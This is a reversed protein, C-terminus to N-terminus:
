STLQNLPTLRKLSDPSAPLQLPQTGVPKNEVWASIAEGLDGWRPLNRGDIEATKRSAVEDNLMATVADHIAVSTPNPLRIQGAADIMELSPVDASVIVPVGLALSELPPLGYGEALSPFLTARSSRILCRLEVDDPQERWVLRGTARLREFLEWTPKELREVRGVMVLEVDMERKWLYDFAELIAHINKRPELTGVVTFRRSEAQFEGQATGLGDCGLTLAPWEPRDAIRLFRALFDRRTQQSIFALNKMRRLLRLYEITARSAGVSFWQPQLWPLLDYVLFYLHDGWGRELWHQYFGIRQPCFFLELNLMARYRTPLVEDRAIPVSEGINRLETLARRATEPCDGFFQQMLRFTNGPLRYVKGEGGVRVPFLASDGNWNRIVEYTVRQIGTRLPRRVLETLDLLILDNM